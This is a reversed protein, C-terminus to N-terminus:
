DKATCGANNYGDLTGALGLITNADGSAIAANVQSIIQASTLPYNVNPNASNLLAAIAARMLIEVKGGLSDGGKFSLGTLLTHDGIVLGGKDTTYSGTNFVNKILTNTTYPASWFAFHQEQKWFGPTCGSFVEPPPCLVTDTASATVTAHNTASASATNNYVGCSATTTASEITVARSAGSALDGFNCSLTQSPASGTISCPNGAPQSTIGWSVGSGGPLPDNLAVGTATGPGGSNVTITFNIPSGANVTGNGTKSISLSPCRVTNTASATVTAHNTASASATNPYSGCSAFATASQVTVARSVGSALDGFNCSLTQTPATGTISCPDGAPQNTISWNVGTGGPLPDNLTVGNATGPGNSNVTVTFSMPSGADVTGSGTKSISLSPNQVVVRNFFSLTQGVELGYQVTVTNTGTLKKTFVTAGVLSDQRISDLAIVGPQAVETVTATRLPFLRGPNDVLKCEGAVLTHTTTSGGAVAVTFTAGTGFKCINLQGQALPTVAFVPGTNSSTAPAVVGANDCAWIAPGALLVAALAGVRRMSVSSM